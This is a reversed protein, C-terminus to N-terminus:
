KVCLGEQRPYTLNLCFDLPGAFSAMKSGAHGDQGREITSKVWAKIKAGFHVKKALSHGFEMQRQGLEMQKQGFEMQRHGLEMQRQGLDM